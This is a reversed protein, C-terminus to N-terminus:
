KECTAIKGTNNFKPSLALEASISIFYVVGDICIEKFKYTSFSGVNVTIIKGNPSILKNVNEGAQSTGTLALILFIMSIVFLLVVTFVDNGRCM